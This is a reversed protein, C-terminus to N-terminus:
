YYSVEAGAFVIGIREPVSTDTAPPVIAEFSASHGTLLTTISFEASRDDDFVVKFHAEHFDLSTGNIISGTVKVGGDVPAAKFDVLYFGLGIPQVDAFSSDAWGPKLRAVEEALAKGEARTEALEASLRHVQAVLAIVAALNLLAVAAAVLLIKGPTGEFGESLSPSPRSVPRTPGGPVEAGTHRKEPM